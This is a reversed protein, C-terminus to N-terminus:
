SQFQLQLVNGVSIEDGPNLTRRVGPALREGNVMTGNKSNLDEIYFEDGSGGIAFHRRSIAPLEEAQVLSKFDERGFGKSGTVYIEANNSGVLRPLLPATESASAASSGPSTTADFRQAMDKEAGPQRPATSGSEPIKFTTVPSVDEVRGKTTFTLTTEDPLTIKSGIPLVVKTRPQIRQGNVRTGGRSELDEIYFTDDIRSIRFQNRSIENLNEYPVYQAFDERGFVKDETVFIENNPPAILIGIDKAPLSGTEPIYNFATYWVGFSVIIIIILTILDGSGDYIGHLVAAALLFAGTKKWGNQRDTVYFVIGMAALSSWLLHGPLVVVVRMLLLIGLDLQIGQQAAQLVENPIRILMYSIDEM